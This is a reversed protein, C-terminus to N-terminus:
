LVCSDFFELSYTTRVAASFSFWTIGLARLYIFIIVDAMHKAFTKGHDSETVDHSPESM